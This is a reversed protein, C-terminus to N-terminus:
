ALEKRLYAWADLLGAPKAFRLVLAYAVLGLVAAMVSGFVVGPLGFCLAGIAGFVAAAWVIGRAVPALVGLMACLVVLVAFTTGAMGIAIGSLGSAHRGIAEIGVHLIIATAALWPNM